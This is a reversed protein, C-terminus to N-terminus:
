FNYEWMFHFYADMIQPRLFIFTWVEHHGRTSFNNYLYMNFYNNRLTDWPTSFCLNIFLHMLHLICIIIVNIIFLQLKEGM